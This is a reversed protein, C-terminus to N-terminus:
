VNVAQPQTLQAYDEKLKVFVQWLEKIRGSLQPHREEVYNLSLLSQAIEWFFNETNDHPDNYLEEEAEVKKWDELLNQWSRREITIRSEDEPHLKEEEDLERLTQKIELIEQKAPKREATLAIENLEDVFKYSDFELTEM